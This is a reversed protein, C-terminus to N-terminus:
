NMGRVNQYNMIFWECTNTLAEKFGTYMEKKWGLDLMKKNDSPKRYQGTPKDTNWVINEKPYDFIECIMHAAEKISYEETNGVNIPYEGDYNELLFLLINALDMSYTFERLASGNGWLVVKENKHKAEFIKRIISPLVHGNELDFNDNEGFLNNPVATTFNCEHQKRYARSQVDLMRKAYAYPFNSYHPQGAHIKDETLPYKFVDPYICTSLLSLVKKTGAKYACHLVNTNILINEFYFDASYEMNAKLGGVKAALHIVHEPKYFNFMESTQEASTLDYDASSVYMGDPLACKLAEGVMGTGGTILVKM